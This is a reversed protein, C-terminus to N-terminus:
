SAGDNTAPRDTGNDPAPSPTAPPAPVPATPTEATPTEATPTEATPTEVTPTEVTPTEVKPTEVKPTEVKPTEVTPTEVTPTEAHPRRRRPRRKRARRVPAAEQEPWPILAAPARPRAAEAGDGVGADTGAAATEAPKKARRVREPRVREPRMGEPRMGEPRMGEPRMGEPRPTRTDRRPRPKKKPPPPADDPHTKVWEDTVADRIVGWRNRLSQWGSETTEAPQRAALREWGERTAVSLRRGRMLRDVMHTAEAQMDAWPEAAQAAAMLEAEGPRPGHSQPAGGARPRGRPGRGGRPAPASRLSPESEGAEQRAARELDENYRLIARNEAVVSRDMFSVRQSMGTAKKKAKAVADGEDAAPAPV